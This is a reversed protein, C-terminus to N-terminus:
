TGHVWVRTSGANPDHIASSNVAMGLNNSEEAGSSDDWKKERCVAREEIRDLNQKAEDFLPHAKMILLRFEGALVERVKDKRHDACELVVSHFIEKRVTTITLITDKVWAACVLELIRRNEIVEIVLLQQRTELKNTGVNARTNICNWYEVEKGYLGFYHVDGMESSQTPQVKMGGIRTM